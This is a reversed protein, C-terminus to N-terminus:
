FPGYPGCASAVDDRIAVLHALSPTWVPCENLANTVLTLIVAICRYFSYRITPQRWSSVGNLKTVKFVESKFM